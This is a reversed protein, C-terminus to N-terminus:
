QHLFYSINNNSDILTVSAQKSENIPLQQIFASSTKIDIRKLGTTEHQKAQSPQSWTNMALQHHYGESGFFLAQQGFRYTVNMALEKTLFQEGLKLDIVSLHVHGIFTQSPFKEAPKTATGILDEIDLPETVGVIEGSPLITWDSKPKDVYIEVGNGEPDTLYLAESYGHDAAGELPINHQSAFILYNALDSRTPLLFATHYLGAETQSRLGGDIQELVILTTQDAQIGLSIQSDTKSIISLGIAKEYFTAMNDLNKVNLYVTEIKFENFM